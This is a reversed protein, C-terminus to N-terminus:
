QQWLRMLAAGDCDSIKDDQDILQTPTQMPDQISRHTGAKGEVM